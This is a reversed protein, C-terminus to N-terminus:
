DYCIYQTPKICVCVCRVHRVEVLLLFTKEKLCSHVYLSLNCSALIFAFFLKEEWPSLGTGNFFSTDQMIM